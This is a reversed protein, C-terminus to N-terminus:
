QFGAPNARYGPLTTELMSSKLRTSATFLPLLYVLPLIDANILDHTLLAPQLKVACINSTARRFARFQELVLARINREEYKNETSRSSADREIQAPIPFKCRPLNRLATYQIQRNNLKM